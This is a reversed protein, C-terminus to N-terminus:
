AAGGEGRAVLVTVDDRGRQHDRFLVGAILAPDSGVLGPYADLNWRSSLGDSHMVLLSGNPYPYALEQVTRAEHGVTGNHSMLGRGAGASLVTGSVNGVGAYRVVEGAVDIEAVAVAAGRTARLAAHIARLVGAPGLGAHARFVRVVERAAEAAQPGHGLGDAVLLRAGAGTPEVFLADGCVEEGPRPVSVSGTAVPRTGERPRSWLRAVLATGTEPRSYVDTFASNRVVAGLGTGPSGATSFGDRLCRGVDAMGPGKDLALIEVGPNSDDELPHLLMWGDRAHKVLNGALETAVLAARGRGTEDFGLAAALADAARRAEGVRSAETLPLAIPVPVACV